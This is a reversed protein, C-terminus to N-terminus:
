RWLELGAVVSEVTRGSAAPDNPKRGGDLNKPDTSKRKRTKSKDEINLELAWEEASEILEELSNGELGALVKAPLDFRDKVALVAAQREAEKLRLEAAEARAIAKDLDSKQADEDAKVKVEIERLRKVEKRLNRAEANTKNIKAIARAKDFKDDDEAIDDADADTDADTDDEIVEEVTADADAEPAKDPEVFAPQDVSMNPAAM